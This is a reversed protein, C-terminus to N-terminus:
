SPDRVIYWRREIQAVVAGDEAGKSIRFKAANVLIGSAGGLHLRGTLSFEQPAGPFRATERIRKYM